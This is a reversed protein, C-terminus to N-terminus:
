HMHIIASFTYSHPEAWGIQHIASLGSKRDIQVEIGLSCVHIGSCTGFKHLLQTFSSLLRLVAMCTM